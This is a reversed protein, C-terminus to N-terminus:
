QEAKVVGFRPPFGNTDIASMWKLFAVLARAEDENIHLNPMRRKGQPYAPPNQLWKAIAEERTKVGLMPMLREAWWPDQYARTLDPAYYAGNGLITHCEMCNRGQLTMKGRNILKYAAENSLEQGFFGTKEGIVPVQRRKEPDWKLGIEYNIVDWAPVRGAGPRIKGQTDFTLWLLIGTMVVSSVVAANRWFTPSLWGYGRSLVLTVVASIFVAAVAIQIWSYGM